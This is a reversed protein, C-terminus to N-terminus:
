SVTIPVRTYPHEDGCDIKRGDPAVWPMLRFHAGFPHYAAYESLLDYQRVYGAVYWERSDGPIVFVTKSRSVYCKPLAGLVYLAERTDPPDGRMAAPSGKPADVAQTYSAGHYTRGQITVLVAKVDQCDHSELWETLEVPSVGKM